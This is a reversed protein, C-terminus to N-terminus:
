IPPGEEVLDDPGLPEESTEFEPILPDDGDHIAALKDRTGQDVEGTVELGHTTQFSILAASLDDDILYGLNHLRRRIGEETNISRVDIFFETFFVVDTPDDDSLSYYIKAFEYPINMEIVFQGQDNTTTKAVGGDNFRLEVEVNKRVEGFHNHIIGRLKRKSDAKEVSSIIVNFDSTGDLRKCVINGKAAEILEGKLRAVVQGDIELTYIGIGKPKEPYEFTGDAKTRGPIGTGGRVGNSQPVEGDMFEGDPAILIYKANVLPTGDDFKISGSVIITGLEAPQRCWRNDNVPCEKKLAPITFCCRKNQDGPGLCWNSGVIGPNPLDFTDPKIVECPLEGAKVFLFETRRNPRWADRTNKVPDKEGCGLWKLIEGECNAFYQNEPVALNDQELYAKILAEWTLDDVIGTHTLGKEKQFDRVATETIPGHNGDINGSYFGLDQLIYQYERTGWSDKISPLESVPRRQRLNDWEDLAGGPDHGFTVYAFASRARRESLSQNYQDSGALDTHGVVVLKEDSHALAYSSVQRLVARMCPEIFSNDFRFHIIFTKAISVGPHLTIAVQTTQGAQVAASTSGSMPQPATVVARVTYQGPPFGEDTWINGARNTLTRTLSTGDEQEGEVSVTVLGFDFSPQGEVIVEVVLTGMDVSPPTPPTLPPPPPQEIRPDPAEIFERLTLAYEFREPKGALERVGMEEILVQDVRTATTIDSVFPVPDANRFKDRLTKLSEGAETGTMVGTLSVRNARRGIGQFFDGELAPIEHEVLVQDEDIEIKQVKELEIDDLMPKVRPM